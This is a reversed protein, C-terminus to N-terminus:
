VSLGYQDALGQIIANQASTDHAVTYAVIRAIEVNGFSSGIGVRFRQGSFPGADGTVAAEKNLRIQSSGGNFIATFIGWSGEALSITGVDGGAEIGLQPEATRMKFRMSGNNLGDYFGGGDVWTIQRGVLYITTPQSFNGSAQFIFDNSGDFLMTDFGALGGAILLPQENGTSQELNPSVGAADALASVGTVVTVTDADGPNYDALIDAAPPIYSGGAPRNGLFEIGIGIGVNM